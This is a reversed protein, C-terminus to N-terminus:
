DPPNNDSFFDAMLAILGIFLLWALFIYVFLMPIGGIKGGYGFLNFMPYSFLTLGLFFLSILRQSKM